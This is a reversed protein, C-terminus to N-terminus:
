KAKYKFTITYFNNYKVNIVSYSENMRQKSVLSYLVYSNKISRCIYMYSFKRDICPVAHCAGDAIPSLQGHNRM